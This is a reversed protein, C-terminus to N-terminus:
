DSEGREKAIKELEKEMLERSGSVPEEPFARGCIGFYKCYSCVDKMPKADIDGKLLREGYEAVKRKAFIRMATFMSDSVTMASLSKQSLERDLVTNVGGSDTIRGKREFAIEASACAAEYLEQESLERDPGIPGGESLLRLYFVGAQEPEYEELPSGKELLMSLYILMQLDLGCYLDALDLDAHTRYKYDVIRVFKRGNDNEYIDARDIIGTMVIKRGDELSIELSGKDSSLSYETIVPAFSGGKLERQVYKVIYFAREKMQGFRYRFISSKGFDGCFVEEYYSEFASDILARIEEDSLSLFRERNEEPAGSVDVAKQLVSHVMLGKNLSDIDMRRESDLKLGYSCFYMFPCKFYNDLRTPSAGLRDGGCFLEGATRPSLRYPQGEEGNRLRRLKEYYIPDDMLSQYVAGSQSDGSRFREIYKVFATKYSTCFFEMPFSNIRKVPLGLIDRVERVLMSPRKESGLLDGRSYSVYLRDSPACLVSYAALREHKMDNLVNAEIVLDERVRLLEKEHETMLGSGKLPAPFVGDNVEAAFVARVEGLRSRAADTVRLCDLKQPPSATKMQSLMISYLEYYKRLSIKEDGLIQYISRVASLSLNWLQKLGRAIETGTENASVGARSVRSVMSYTQKSLEVEGLLDYFARSIEAASRDQGAQRFRLLPGIVKERLENIRELRVGERPAATFPRSWMEGEVGWRICYEELDCIEYDLMSYLPSKILKMINETRFGKTLVSRFVANIYHVIASADVSDRQDIFYPIEYRELAAEMVPAFGKLDRVTVAIDNYSYGEERVLRCVEACIFDAEEYVDDAELVQVSGGKAKCGQKEVSFLERSLMLLEESAYGSEVSEEVAFKKNHDRAMDTLQQMTRVTVSFPHVAHQGVTKIDLLLSVYVNAADRICLDLIKREDYSFGTFATVFVSMNRFLGKEKATAAAEAMATMSDTLGASELEELYYRYIHGLDFLKLSVSGELREAARRLDEPTIGSERLQDVLEISDAIFSGKDFSNKYYKARGGAALSRVAKFMLIMKANDGAQERLGSGKEKGILEALRNFGTTTISNFLRPGLCKYLSKDFEFSFQDPVIVLVKEGMFAAQRIYDKMLEERDSRAPGTIIKLM